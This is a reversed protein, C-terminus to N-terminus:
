GEAHQVGEGALLSNRLLMRAPLSTLTHVEDESGPRWFGRQTMSCWVLAACGAIALLSVPLLIAVVLEASSKGPEAPTPAPEPQATSSPSSSATSSPNASRDTSLSVSVDSARVGLVSVYWVGVRWRTDSRNVSIVEVEGDRVGDLVSSWQHSSPTTAANPHQDVTSVFAHVLGDAHTTVSLNLQLVDAAIPFSFFHFMGAAVSQRVGNGDFPLSQQDGDHFATVAVAYTLLPSTAFVLAKYLCAPSSSFAAYDAYVVLAQLTSPSSPSPSLVTSSYSTPSSVVPDVVASISPDAIYLSPLVAAHAGLDTLVLLAHEGPRSVASLSFDVYRVPSAGDAATLNVSFGPRLTLRPQASVTLRYAMATARSEVGGRYVAVYLWSQGQLPSLDSGLAPMQALTLQVYQVGSVDVSQYSFAEYPLPSPLTTQGASTLPGPRSYSFTAFMQPGCSSCSTSLLMSVSRAAAVSDVRLQYYDVSGATMVGDAPQDYSMLSAEAGVDLATVTLTYNSARQGLVAVYFTTNAYRSATTANLGDLTVVDRGDAGDLQSAADHYRSDPRTSTRSVFVDANGFREGDVGTLLSQLTITVRMQPHPLAFSHYAVHDAAVHAPQTTLGPLLKRPASIPAFALTYRTDPAVSYVVATWTCVAVTCVDAATIFQAGAMLKAVRWSATSVSWPSLSMAAAGNAVSLYLWPGPYSATANLSSVAATFNTVTWYQGGVKRSPVSLSYSATAGSMLSDHALQGLTLATTSRLSALLTCTTSYDIRIVVYYTANALLPISSRATMVVATGDYGADSLTPLYATSSGFIPYAPYVTLRSYPRRSGTSTNTLSSVFVSLLLQSSGTVQADSGVHIAYVRDTASGSLNLFASAYSSQQSVFLSGSLPMPANRGTTVVSLSYRAASSGTVGVLVNTAQSYGSTWSLAPDLSWTAVTDVGVTRISQKVSNSNRRMSDQSLLPLYAGSVVLDPNGDDLPTLVTTLNFSSLWLTPLTLNYLVVEGAAVYASAISTNAAIPIATIRTPAVDSSVSVHSVTLRWNDVAQSFFALFHYVCGVGVLLSCRSDAVTLLFDGLYYPDPTTAWLFQGPITSLDRLTPVSSTYQPNVLLFPPLTIRTTNHSRDTVVGAVWSVTPTSSSSPIILDVLGVYGAPVAGQPGTTAMGNSVSLTLRRQRFSVMAGFSSQRTQSQVSFYVTQSPLLPSITVWDSAASFLLSQSPSIASLSGNFSTREFPFPEVTSWWMPLYTPLTFSPNQPWVSVVVESSASLTSPTVFSFYAVGNASVTQVHPTDATLPQPTLPSLASTDFPSLSLTISFNLPVASAGLSLFVRAFYQGPLLSGVNSAGGRFQYSTPDFSIESGRWSPSTITAMGFEGNGRQLIDRNRSVYVSAIRSFDTWRVQLRVSVNAPVDFSFPLLESGAISCNLSTANLLVTPAPLLLPTIFLQQVSLAYDLLQQSPPAYLTIRWTCNYHATCTYNFTARQEGTHQQKSDSLLSFDSVTNPTPYLNNVYETPSNVPVVRAYVNGWQGSDAVTLAFSLNAVSMPQQYLEFFRMQTSLLPTDSCYSGNTSLVVHPTFSASVSFSANVVDDTRLYLYGTFAVALYYVSPFAVGNRRTDLVTNLSNVSSCSGGNLVDNVGYASSPGPTSSWSSIYLCANYSTFMLDMDQLSVFPPLPPTVFRFYRIDSVRTFNSSVLQQAPLVPITQNLGDSLSLSLQYQGGTQAFVAVRYSGNMALRQSLPGLYYADLASIILSISPQSSSQSLRWQSSNLDPYDVVASLFVVISSSASPTALTLNLLSQFPLVPFQYYRVQATALSTWPTSSSANTLDSGPAAGRTYDLSVDYGASLDVPVVTLMPLVPLSMVPVIACSYRCGAAVAEAAAAADAPACQDYVSVLSYLSGSALGSRPMSTWTFSGNVPLWAPVDADKACYLVPLVVSSVDVGHAQLAHRDITMSFALQVDGASEVVYEAYTYAGAPLSSADAAAAFGLSLGSVATPTSPQLQTRRSLTASLSYRDATSVCHVRVEYVGYLLRGVDGAAVSRNVFVFGASGYAASDFRRGAPDLVYVDEAGSFVSVAVVLESLASGTHADSAAVTVTWAHLDGQSISRSLPVGSTLGGQTVTSQASAAPLLCLFCCSLSLLLLLLHCLLLSLCGGSSCSPRM